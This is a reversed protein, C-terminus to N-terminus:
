RIYPEEESYHKFMRGLPFKYRNIASILDYAPTGFVESCASLWSHVDMFRKFLEGKDISSFFAFDMNKFMSEATSNFLMYDAAGGEEKVHSYLKELVDFFYLATSLRWVDDEFEESRPNSFKAVPRARSEFLLKCDKSVRTFLKRSKQKQSDTAKGNGCKRFERLHLSEKLRSNNEIANLARENGSDAAIKGPM